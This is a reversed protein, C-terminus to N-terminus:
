PPVTHSDLPQELPRYAANRTCLCRSGTSLAFMSRIVPGTLRADIGQRLCSLRLVCSCRCPRM